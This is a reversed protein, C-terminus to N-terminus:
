YINPYIFSNDEYEDFYKYVVVDKGDVYYSDKKILKMDNLDVDKLGTKKSSYINCYGEGVDLIFGSGLGENINFEVYSDYSGAHNSM